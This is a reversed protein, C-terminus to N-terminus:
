DNVPIGLKKQLAVKEKQGAALLKIKLALKRLRRAHEEPFVGFHKDIEDLLKDIEIELTRQSLILHDLSERASMEPIPGTQPTNKLVKSPSLSNDGIEPSQPEKFM